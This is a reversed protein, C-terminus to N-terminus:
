VEVEDYYRKLILAASLHDTLRRAKQPIGSRVAEEISDGTTGYETVFDVPLKLAISVLRSFRKIKKAGATEKGDLTLPLGFVIKTVRNEIAIRCIENIAVQDNKGSIVRLPSTLGGRGFALGINGSGYDIGLLVQEQPQQEKM